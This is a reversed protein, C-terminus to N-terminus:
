REIRRQLITTRGKRDKASVTVLNEGTLVHWEYYFNGNDDIDILKDNVYVSADNSAKGKVEVIDGNIPQNNQPSTIELKPPAFFKSFQYFGFSLFSLLVIALIGLFGLKSKWNNGSEVLPDALGKPIIEKQKAVIWDRRFIALLKDPDLNLCVAYSRIFGKIFTDAPLKNFNNHELAVLNEPSIKILEHIETLTKGQRLRESKLIEGVTKM